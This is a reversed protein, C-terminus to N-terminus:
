YFNTFYKGKKKIREYRVVDEDIIAAEHLTVPEMATSTFGAAVKGTSYHAKLIFM